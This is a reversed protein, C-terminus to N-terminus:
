YCFQDNENPVSKEESKRMAGILTSVIVCRKSEPAHKSYFTIRGLRYQVNGRDDFRVYYVNNSKAFTTESDINLSSDGLEQWVADVPVTKGPNSTWEIVSDVQRISFQWDRREQQAKDQTQRIASFTRDRTITAKYRGLFSLGFPAAIAALIAIVVIVVLLEILTFGGKQICKKSLLM